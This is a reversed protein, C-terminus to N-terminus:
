ISCIHSHYSYLNYLLKKPSVVYMYMEYFKAFVFVFKQHLVHDISCGNGGMMKSEIFSGHPEFRNIESVSKTVSM